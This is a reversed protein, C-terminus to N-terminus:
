CVRNTVQLRSKANPDSIMVASKPEFMYIVSETEAVFDPQYERQMGGLFYFLQFQGKVPKFWKILERDLIVALKRESDSDFKLAPYLCPEFGGFVYRKMKSKDQPATRFDM